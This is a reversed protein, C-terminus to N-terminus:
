QNNKAILISSNTLSFFIGMPNVFSQYMSNELTEGSSWMGIVHDSGKFIGDFFELLIGTFGLYIKPLEWTIGLYIRKFGMWIMISHNLGHGECLKLEEVAQGLPWRTPPTRGYATREKSFSSSRGANSGGWIGEPPIQFPPKLLSRLTKTKRQHTM